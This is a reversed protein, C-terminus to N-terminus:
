VIEEKVIEKMKDFIKKQNEDLPKGDCSCVFESM